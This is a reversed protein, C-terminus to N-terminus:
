NCIRMLYMLVDTNDINGDGSIDAAAIEAKTLVSVGEPLRSRCIIYENVLALDYADFAGDNNIDGVVLKKSAGAYELESLRVRCKRGNIMIQGMDGSVDIVDVINGDELVAAITKSDDEAYVKVISSDPCYYEGKSYTVTSSSAADASKASTATVTTVAKTTSVAIKTTTTATATTTTTTITSTTTSTTTTTTTTTVLAGLPTFGSYPNKGKLLQYVTINANNYAKFMLIDDKAPDAMYVDDGIVGDVYVWHGGVNCIVYSGKDLAAKIEAAKGKQDTSKFNLNASSISIENVVKNVSAWSSLGGSSNFAGINNLQKAFVGPNFNDTTRAGSAVAVMAISTIYCGSRRVNSGGIATNGWRSDMQRWLRFDEAANATQAPRYVGALVGFVILFTLLLRIIGNEKATRM